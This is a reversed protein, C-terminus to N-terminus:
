SLSGDAHLFKSIPAALWKDNENHSSEKCLQEISKASHSRPTLKSLVFILICPPNSRSAPAAIIGHSVYTGKPLARFKMHLTPLTGSSMNRLSWTVIATRHAFSM